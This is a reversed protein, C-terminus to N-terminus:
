FRVALSASGGFNRNGGRAAAYNASGRLVFREDNWEHAGGLGLRIWNPEAESRLLTDGAKADMRGSLEREVDITAFMGVGVALGDCQAPM